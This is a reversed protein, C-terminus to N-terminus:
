RHPIIGLLYIISQGLSPSGLGRGRLQPSHM